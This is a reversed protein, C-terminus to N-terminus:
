HRQPYQPGTPTGQYQEPESDQPRQSDQHESQYPTDMYPDDDKSCASFLASAFCVSIAFLMRKM